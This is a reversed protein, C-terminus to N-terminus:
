KSMSTCQWYTSIRLSQQGSWHEDQSDTWSNTINPNTIILWIQSILATCAVRKLKYKIPTV